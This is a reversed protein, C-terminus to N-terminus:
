NSTRQSENYIAEVIDFLVYCFPEHKLCGQKILKDINEKTPKDKNM